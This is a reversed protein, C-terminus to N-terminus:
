TMKRNKGESIEGIADLSYMNGARDKMDGSMNFENSEADYSFLLPGDNVLERPTGECTANLKIKAKGVGEISGEIDEAVVLIVRLHAKATGDENTTCTGEGKGKLKIQDGIEIPGLTKKAFADDFPIVGILLVTIISIALISKTRM